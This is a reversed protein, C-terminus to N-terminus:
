TKAAAVPGHQHARGFVQRDIWLCLILAFDQTVLSIDSWDSRSLSPLIHNFPQIEEM